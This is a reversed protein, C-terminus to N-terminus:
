FLVASVLVVVSMANGVGVDAAADDICVLDDVFCVGVGLLHLGLASQATWHVPYQAIYFM